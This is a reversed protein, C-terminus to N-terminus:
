SVSFALAFVVEKSFSRFYDAAEVSGLVASSMDAGAFDSAISISKQKETVDYKEKPKSDVKVPELAANAQGLRYGVLGSTPTWAWATCTSRANRITQAVENSGDSLIDGIIQFSEGCMAKFRNMVILIRGLRINYGLKLQVYHKDGVMTGYLTSFRYYYNAPDANWATYFKQADMYFGKHVWLWSM